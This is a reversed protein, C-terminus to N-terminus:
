QKEIDPLTWTKDFLPKKPGYFRVMTFWAQGPATAIWNTQKGAPAKPGFFIDVSGDQNKQLQQDYSDLNVVPSERIFGATQADYVTVAWFQAAPVQPPVHLRYTREGSLFQGAADVFTMLYASAAGLKKPPAYAVFYTLGRAAADLTGNMEYSFGTKIGVPSPWRWRRDPYFLEGETPSQHVFTAHTKQAADLLLAQTPADPHFRRGQAIGLTKLRELIETDCPLMPEEDLMHALSVYFSEDFRVIGDFLEGSMDIFKQEHPSAAQSLPYLRLKRVLAIARRVAPESADDPIARFLGYGNYTAFRVPLYGGPLPEEYGPPILLYKGGKGADEGAPGVDAMPVQWADLLSGFLGAGSAPPVELVVPGNKTNFNFYVYRSSGNPTTTQNKWDAPKSWYVIDGYKAGADQFFAHRMAHVSVIPMGWVAADLATGTRASTTDQTPAASPM